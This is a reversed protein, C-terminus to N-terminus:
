QIDHLRFSQHTLSNFGETFSLLLFSLSPSFCLPRHLEIPRSLIPLEHAPAVNVPTLHTPYRITYNGTADAPQESHPLSVRVVKYLFFFLHSLPSLSLSPCVFLSFSHSCFTLSYYYIYENNLPHLFPSPLRSHPLFKLSPSFSSRLSQAILQLLTPVLPPSVPPTSWGKLRYTYYYASHPSTSYVHVSIAWCRYLCRASVNWKCLNM